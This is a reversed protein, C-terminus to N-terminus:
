KFIILDFIFINEGYTYEKKRHPKQIHSRASGSPKKDEAVAKSYTDKLSKWKKKAKEPSM